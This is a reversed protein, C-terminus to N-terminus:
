GGAQLALEELEEWRTYATALDQELEQLCSKHHAIERGDGKYLSPDALTDYLSRKRDEMEEIRDPLQELERRERFTLKRPGPSATRPRVKKEQPGSRSEGEGGPRQRLWDDYGGVYERVRGPGEFVLSSTVANNLFARDHSVMLVTGAYAALMSELLDLTEPDLDNTPEDLVLVNSPRTFLKALLLRNREGGSLATIPARAQAPTFLFDSLYGIVNRPKGNVFVTDGGDAVNEQLSRSEDLQARLQDFYAVELRTGRRVSGQDPEIEGLLIRLLTTKGCGNPGIIGVRDGRMVTFSFGSVISVDGYAFGVDRAHLVLRGSREAEQLMMHVDGSRARRREVAERMEMLARVRGENRTRRARLGKRLWAEERKVHKDFETNQASENRLREERLDLYDEYAGSFSFLVARDLEVIRTALRKLFARDHTVFLLTGAFRLLFEEMWTITDIDLHNTPEDLLLIDPDSVLARALTVRRRMGASLDGFSATEEVGVRSIVTRVQRHLQWAGGAEMAHQVENLRAMTEPDNGEAAARSLRQHEHLLAANRPHGSAVVDYVSGELGLPVEQPLLATKLGLERHVTGTDPTLEGHLLKLLTSKGAGNRGILCIREGREIQLDAGDLLVPGGFAMRINKLSLLAMSQKGKERTEGPKVPRTRPM